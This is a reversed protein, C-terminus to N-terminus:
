RKEKAARPKKFVGWALCITTFHFAVSLVWAIVGLVALLVPEPIWHM